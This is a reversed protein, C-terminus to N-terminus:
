VHHSGNVNSKALPAIGRFNNKQSSQHITHEEDSGASHNISLNTVTNFRKEL